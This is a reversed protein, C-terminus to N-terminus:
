VTFEFHNYIYYENTYGDVYGVPIGNEYKVVAKSKSENRIVYASPLNDVLFSYYYDREIIWRFNNIPIHESYDKECVQRCEVNNMM